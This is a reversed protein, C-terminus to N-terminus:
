IHQSDRVSGARDEQWQDLRKDLLLIPLVSPLYLGIRAPHVEAVSCTLLDLHELGILQHSELVCQRCHLVPGSQVPVAAVLLAARSPLSLSEFVKRVQRNFWVLM